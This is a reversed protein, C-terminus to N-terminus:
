NDYQELLSADAVAIRVLSALLQDSVHGIGIGIRAELGLM